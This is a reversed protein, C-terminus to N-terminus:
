AFGWSCRAPSRLPEWPQPATPLWTGVVNWFRRTCLRERKPVGCKEAQVASAANTPVLKSLPEDSKDAEPRRRGGPSDPRPSAGACPSLHYSQEFRGFTDTEGLFRRRVTSRKLSSRRHRCSKLVEPSANRVASNARESGAPWCRLIPEQM